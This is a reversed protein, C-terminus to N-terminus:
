PVPVPVPIPANPGKPIVVGEPSPANPGKPIVVGDPSPANPGKPIVVGEPSPANPGKPIIVGEPSPANPGKPIVVGDPSPANPGKPIVVGEPSPANPGKPIVPGTKGIAPIDYLATINNLIDHFVKDGVKINYRMVNGAPIEIVARVPDRCIIHDESLPTAHERIMSITADPAVFLIDLSIKTNKMWMAIPRVPYIDFIMGNTLPLENRYMLGKQLEDPTSAVEVNFHIEGNSTNITLPTTPQGNNEKQPCASVFFCLGILILTKKIM